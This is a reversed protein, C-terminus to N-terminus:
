VKWEIHMIIIIIIIIIAWKSSACFSFLIFNTCIKWNLKKSM